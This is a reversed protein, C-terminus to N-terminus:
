FSFRLGFQMQRPNNGQSSVVGFNAVSNTGPSLGPDFFVPHNFVNTVVYQFDISTREWVKINKSVRLDMNWYMLGRILGGNGGTGTDLGLIAPRVTALLAAPNAFIQYEGQNGDNHLSSSGTPHAGTFICQENDFFSSGDGAGFSQADTRTNCYVPAGSGAAFVPALQWGGALHGILGHQGKYWPDDILAYVNYVFKRDFNQDGYMNHLNFPDNVTYESTAQVLAGTGLAKSYTFNQQLTVNHWNMMKLSVFAGNYNGYGISANVGVGSSLQGNGGFASTNLPSNLMDRQFNFGPTTAGGPGGGIGGKDLDSWISWVKQRQLNGLENAVFTATCTGPTCYGTGALATEFFPQPTLAATTSAVTAARCTAYNVTCGMAKEVAAYASAFTQGGVTMM